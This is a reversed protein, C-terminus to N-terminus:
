RRKLQFPPIENDAVDITVELEPLKSTAPNQYQEPLLEEGFEPESSNPRIPKLWSLSVYYEGTPAGSLKKVTPHKNSTVTEVFTWLQFEGNEDTMGTATPVGDSQDKPILAVRVYAKPTGDVFVTGHAPYVAPVATGGSCGALLMLLIGVGSKLCLGECGAAVLNFRVPIEMLFDDGVTM